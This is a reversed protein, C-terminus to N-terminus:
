VYAEKKKTRKFFAGFVESKYAHIIEDAVLESDGAYIKDQINNIAYEFHFDKFVVKFIIADIDTYVKYRIYGNVRERLKEYVAMAYSYYMDKDM